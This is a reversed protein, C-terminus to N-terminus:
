FSEVREECAKRYFNKPSKHLLLFLLYENEGKFNERIKQYAIRMQSEVTKVSINMEEAIERYKLGEIKNKLLIERCREPLEAIVSKLKRIKDAMVEEDSELHASLARFKLDDFFEQEKKKQRYHDVYINYCIRSLYGKLNTIREANERQEWLSIFAQQVIDESKDNDKVYANTYSFLLQYYREFLSKFAGQDGDKLASILQLETM